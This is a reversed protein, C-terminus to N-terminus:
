GYKESHLEGQENRAASRALIVNRTLSESNLQLNRMSPLTTRKSRGPIQSELLATWDSDSDDSHPKVAVPQNKRRRIPRLNVLDLQRARERNRQVNEKRCTPYLQSEFAFNLTCLGPECPNGPRM